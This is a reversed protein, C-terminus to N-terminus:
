FKQGKLLHYFAPKALDSFSNTKSIILIAIYFAAMQSFLFM